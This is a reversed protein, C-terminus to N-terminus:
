LTALSVKEVYFTNGNLYIDLVWLKKNIKLGMMYSKKAQEIFEINAETVESGNLGILEDKLDKYEDNFFRDWFSVYSLAEEIDNKDGNFNSLLNILASYIQEKSHKSHVKDIQLYALSLYDPCSGDLQRSIKNFYSNSELLLKDSESFDNQKIETFVCNGNSTHRRKSVFYYAYEDDKFVTCRKVLLEDINSPKIFDLQVIQDQNLIVCMPRQVEIAYVDFASLLVLLGSYYKRM